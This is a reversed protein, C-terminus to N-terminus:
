GRKVKAALLSSGIGTMIAAAVTGVTGVYPAVKAQQAERFKILIDQIGREAEMQKLLAEVSDPRGSALQDLRQQFCGMRNLTAEETDTWTSSSPAECPPPPTHVLSHQAIASVLVGLVFAVVLLVATKV